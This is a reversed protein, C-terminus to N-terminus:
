MSALKKTIKNDRERVLNMCSDSSYYVSINVNNNLSIINKVEPYNYIGNTLIKSCDACAYIYINCIKWLIAYVCFGLFSKGTFSNFM